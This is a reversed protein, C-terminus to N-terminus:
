TGVGESAIWREAILDAIFRQMQEYHSGKWYIQGCGPCQRIEDFYRRTKPQLRDLIEEKAVPELVANCHVCRRFPAIQDYLDYRRLVDRLQAEPHSEWVYFGHSVIRRKLLGRDRTLLIRGERSSVQALTADDYDNRYLTDFGLMRLHTALKGLHADLVFRPEGSLTPEVLALGAVQITRFPPYISIWDGENALYAFEAPQGNVLILGVETHPVALAEIVHKVSQNEGIAYAFRRQRRPAPLFANLQAYFRVYILMM